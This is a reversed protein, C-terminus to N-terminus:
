DQGDVNGDSSVVHISAITVSDPKEASDNTIQLRELSPWSYLGIRLDYQGDPLGDPIEVPYVDSYTENNKWVSTPLSNGGVPRDFQTVLQGNEDLVHVFITYDGEPHELAEWFLEVPVIDGPNVATGPLDFGLLRLQDGFIVNKPNPIVEQTVSVTAGSSVFITLGIASDKQVQLSDDAMMIKLTVQNSMVQQPLYMEVASVYLRDQDWNSPALPRVPWDSYAAYTNNEDELSLVYKKDETQSESSGAQWYLTVPVTQGPIVRRTAQDIEYAVLILGEALPKNIQEAQVPLMSRTLTEPPEYKPLVLTSPLWISYWTLGIGLFLTVGRQFRWYTLENLGIVIVTAMVFVVPFLYRAHGAGVTAVSFRLFSVFLLAAMVFLSLWIEWTQRLRLRGRLLALIFGLFAIATLLWFYRASEPFTIHMFGFAGWFTRSIQGLFEGFFVNLTYAGQRVMHQHINLFMDWGLPDGYLLYNRLYWWGALVVTPVFTYLSHMMFQRWARSRYAKLFLAIVFTLGLVAGSIKTLMAAAVLVGGIIYFGSSVEEKKLLYVIWLIGFAFIASQQVDHHVTATMFLYSPNFAILTVIGIPLWSSTGFMLRGARLLAYLGLLSLMINAVRLVQLALVAGEWPFADQGFHQMINWGNRGDNERWIFHNNSKFVDDANATDFPATVLAGFVYYLPPHHGMWVEVGQALTKPQVPLSGTEKVYTVYQFHPIEDVGEGAPIVFSYWLAIGIFVMFLLITVWHQARRRKSAREDNATVQLQYLPGDLDPNNSRIEGATSHSHHLTVIISM